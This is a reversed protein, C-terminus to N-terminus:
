GTQAYRPTERLRLNWSRTTQHLYGPREARRGAAPRPRTSASPQPLELTGPHDRYPVPSQHNRHPTERPEATTSQIRITQFDINTFQLTHLQTQRWASIKFSWTLPWFRFSGFKWFESNQRGRSLHKVPQRRAKGVNALYCGNKKKPTPFKIVWKEHNLRWKDM